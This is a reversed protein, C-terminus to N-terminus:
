ENGQIYEVGKISDTKIFEDKENIYRLYNGSDIVNSSTTIREDKNKIEIGITSSSKNYKKTKKLVKIHSKVM